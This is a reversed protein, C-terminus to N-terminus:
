ERSTGARLRQLDEFALRRVTHPCLCSAGTRTRCYAGRTVGCFACPVSLYNDFSPDRFPRYVEGSWAGFLGRLIAFLIVVSGFLRIIRDPDSTHCGAALLILLMASSFVLESRDIVQIRQYDLYVFQSFCLDGLFNVPCRRIM